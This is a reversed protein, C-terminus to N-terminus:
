RIPCLLEIHTVTHATVTVPGGSECSYSGDGYQPSHGVVRYKGPAISLSFRGAGDVATTASRGDARSAALSGPLRKNIGPPPGGVERMTGEIIGVPANSPANVGLWLVEDVGIPDQSLPKAAVRGGTVNGYGFIAFGDNSVGVGIPEAFQEFTGADRTDGSWHEGDRSTWLIADDVKQDAGPHTRYGVAVWGAQTHAVGTFRAFGKPEPTSVTVVRTWTKGTASWWIAAPSATDGRTDVAGVAVYGHDDSAIANVSNEPGLAIAYDTRDVIARNQDLAVMGTPGDTADSGGCAIPNDQAVLVFSAGETSTWGAQPCRGSTAAYVSQGFAYLVGHAAIVRSISVSAGLAGGEGGASPGAPPQEVALRRWSTGDDTSRWAAPGGDATGVAILAGPVGVLDNVQTLGQNNASRLVIRAQGDASLEEIVAGHEDAGVAYTRGNASVVRHILVSSAPVRTWALDAVSGTTSDHSGDAPANSSRRSPAVAVGIAVVVVVVAAALAMWRASRKQPPTAVEPRLRAAARLAESANRAREDLARNM